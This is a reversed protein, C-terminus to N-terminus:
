IALATWRQRPSFLGWMALIFFAMWFHIALAYALMHDPWIITSLQFLVFLGVIWTPVSHFLQRLFLILLVLTLGYILFSVELHTRVNWGDSHYQAWVFLKTTATRHDNVQEYLWKANLAAPHDDYLLGWEDGHPLNVANRRVVSFHFAFVSLFVLSIMVTAMPNLKPLGVSVMSTMEKAVSVHRFM